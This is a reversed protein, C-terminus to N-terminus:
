KDLTEAFGHNEARCCDMAMGFALSFDGRESCLHM